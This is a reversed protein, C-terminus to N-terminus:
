LLNIQSAIEAYKSDVSNKVKKSQSIVVSNKKPEDDCDSNDKTAEDKAEDDSEDSNDKTDDEKAEDANTLKELKELLVSHQKKLADFEAYIDKKDGDSEDSNDKAVEDKTEDESNFIDKISLASDIFAMKDLGTKSNCIAKVSNDKIRSEIVQMFSNFTAMPIEITEKSKTHSQLVSNVIEVIEQKDMTAGKNQTSNYITVGRDRPHHTLCFHNPRLNIQTEKGNEIQTQAYYGLSGGNIRRNKIDEIINANTIRLTGYVIHSGDMERYEANVISGISQSALKSYNDKDVMDDPHEKFILLGNLSHIFESDSISEAPIFNTKDGYPLEAERILISDVLIAGSVGKDDRITSKVFHSNLFRM